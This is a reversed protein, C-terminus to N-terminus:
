CSLLRSLMKLVQGQQFKRAFPFDDANQHCGSKFFARAFSFATCQQFILNL